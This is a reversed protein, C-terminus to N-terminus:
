NSTKPRKWFIALEVTQLNSNIDGKM